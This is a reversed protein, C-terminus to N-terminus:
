RVVPLGSSRWASMGGALQVADVFGRRVLARVAPISRHGSACIAVVTRTPDVALGDLARGFSTITTHKSGAIHGAAYEARTRVDLLDASGEEIARMLRHPTIEAVAGFPRLDFLSRILSM